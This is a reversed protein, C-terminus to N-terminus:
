KRRAATEMLRVRRSVLSGTKLLIVLMTSKDGEIKKAQQLV